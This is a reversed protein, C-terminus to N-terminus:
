DTAEYSSDGRPYTEDFCLSGSTIKLGICGFVRLKIVAILQCPGFQNLLKSSGWGRASILLLVGLFAHKSSKNKHQQVRAINAM